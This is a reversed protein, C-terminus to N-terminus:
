KGWTWVPAAAGILQSAQVLGYYRSDYSTSVLTAQMYYEGASIRYGNWHPWRMPRGKPDTALMTGLTRCQADFQDDPCAFQQRGRTFLWAGPVAGVRKLFRAGTRYYRGKAWAPARYHFSVLEGPRLAPPHSGFRHVLYLGLPESASTNVLPRFPQSGILVVVAWAAIILGLARGWTLRAPVPSEPKTM